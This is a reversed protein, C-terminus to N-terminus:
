SKLCNNIDVRAYNPVGLGSLGNYLFTVTKGIWNEKEALFKVAEEYTGKFTADFDKGKWRLSIRKGTGAWNGTGETIDVIEAEDDDEPKLKLLNASRKNEYPADIIRVIAGEENDDILTQFYEYVEEENKCEVSEVSKLFPILLIKADLWGQRFKYNDEKKVEGFGYGDYVYYRILEKSKAYHEPTLHVTRRIISMTENLKEKFGEGLLEGDLVADPYERFFSVLSEEIHPCSLFKEGKRSFLGDKTAVCRAGNFKNQVIVPYKIKDKRDDFKKALMPEVYKLKDIDEVNEFYGTKLKKKYLAEVEKAAQVEGSTENSRGVNKPLCKTPETTVIKGDLQGYSQSYSDGNQEAWWVQVAGTSTRSYLKKM